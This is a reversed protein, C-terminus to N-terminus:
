AKFKFYTILAQWLVKVPVMKLQFQGNLDTEYRNNFLPSIQFNIKDIKTLNEIFKIWGYILGTHMPNALGLKRSLSLNDFQIQSLAAKGMKLYTKKPQNKAEREKKNKKKKMKQQIALSFIPRKYKGFGIKKYPFISFSLGSTKGGLHISVDGDREKANWILRGSFALRYPVVLLVILIGILFSFTWLVSQLIM